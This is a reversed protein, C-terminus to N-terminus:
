PSLLKNAVVTAASSKLAAEGEGARLCQCRGRKSLKYRRGKKSRTFIGSQVGKKLAENICPYEDKSAKLVKKISDSTSGTQDQRVLIINRIIDVVDDIAKGAISEVEAQRM